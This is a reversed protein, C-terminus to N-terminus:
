QTLPIFGLSKGIVQIIFYVVFIGVSVAIGAFAIKAWKAYEKKKTKDKATFYLILLVIGAPVGFINYFTALVTLLSFILAIIQM